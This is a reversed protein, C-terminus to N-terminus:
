KGAGRRALGLRIWPSLFIALYILSIWPQYDVYFAHASLSYQSKILVFGVCDVVIALVLWLIALNRTESKEERPNKNRNKRFYIWAFIPWVILMILVHYPVTAVFVPMKVPSVRPPPPPLNAISGYIETTAAALITVIIYAAFFLALARIFNLKM